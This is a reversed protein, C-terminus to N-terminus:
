VRRMGGNYSPGIFRMAKLAMAAAPMVSAIVSGVGFGAFVSDPSTEPVAPRFPAMETKLPMGNAAGGTPASRHCAGIGGAEHVPTRFPSANEGLQMWFM